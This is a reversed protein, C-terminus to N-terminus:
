DKVEGDEIIVACEEGTSVRTAIIQLGQDAAWQGFESLTDTDMSEMGDMLVFGCTPNLRSVISCGVIRQQSGSMCDWAMGNYTLEGEEVALGDLPLNAGEFLDAKSARVAELTASVEDYVEKVANVAGEKSKYENNAALKRNDAEATEMAATIPATDPIEIAAAKADAEDALKAAAVGDAKESEIVAKEKEIKAQLAEIQSTYEVISDKSRM